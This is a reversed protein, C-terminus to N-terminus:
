FVIGIFAAICRYFKQGFFFAYVFYGAEEAACIYGFRRQCAGALKEAVRM